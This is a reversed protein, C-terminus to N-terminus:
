RSTGLNGLMYGSLQIIRSTWSRKWLKGRGKNKMKLVIGVLVLHENLGNGKPSACPLLFRRNMPSLMIGSLNEM